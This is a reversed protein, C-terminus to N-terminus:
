QIRQRFVSFWSSKQQFSSSSISTLLDIMLWIPPREVRKVQFYGARGFGGGVGCYGINSIGVGPGVCVVGIGVGGELSGVVSGLSGVGGELSGVGSGLSGV